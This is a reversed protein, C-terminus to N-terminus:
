NDGLARRVWGYFYKQSTPRKKVITVYRAIKAVTFAALFHESNFANIATLSDNGIVGDSKVDVVVQALSASTGTGANVGFDFISNAVEQNAIKDGNIKDWFNVRYFDSIAEQLDADKDLSAPFGSQRKLTDVIIWGSWKSFIKRAVGKYTEGGPDDPDNVYGGEHAIMLQFANNFDAM